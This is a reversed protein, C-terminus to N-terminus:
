KDKRLTYCVSLIKDFKLSESSFKALIQKQGTLKHALWRHRGDRIEFQGNALRAVKIPPFQERGNNQIEIAFQLAKKDLPVRDMIITHLLIDKKIRMNIAPKM